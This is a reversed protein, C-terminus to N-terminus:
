PPRSELGRSVGLKGMFLAKPLIFGRGLGDSLEIDVFGRYNDGLDAVVWTMKQASYLRLRDNDVTDTKGLDPRGSPYAKLVLGNHFGYGIIEVIDNEGSQDVRVVPPTIYSIQLLDLYTFGGIVIDELGHSNMLQVAAPGAYHPMTTLHVENYGDDGSSIVKDIVVSQGGIRIQPQDGFSTGRIVVSTGGEISGTNPFISVIEPKQEAGAASTFFSFRYDRALANGTLPTLGAKIIVVYETEPLLDEASLLEIFRYAPENNRTSFKIQFSDTVDEGLAYSGDNSELVGGRYVQVYESLSTTSPLVASLEIEIKPIATSVQAEAAMPIHDAVVLETLEIRNIGQKGAAVQIAGRALTLDRAAFSDQSAYRNLVVPITSDLSPDDVKELDIIEVVAQAPKDEQDAYLVSAYALNGAVHVDYVGKSILDERAPHLEVIRALKPHFPDRIDIENLQSVLGEGSMDAVYLKSGVIQLRNAIGLTDIQAVIPLTPDLIDVVVVGEESAAIYAFRDKIKVDRAYGNPKIYGIHYPAALNTIDIVQVGGNGNAIFALNDRRDLGYTQIYPLDVRGTLQYPLGFQGDGNQINFILLEGHQNEPYTAGTEPNKAIEAQLAPIFGAPVGDPMTYESPVGQKSALVFNADAHLESITGAFIESAGNLLESYIFINSSDTQEAEIDALFIGTCVPCT